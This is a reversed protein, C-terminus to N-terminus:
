GRINIQSSSDHKSLAIFTRYKGLQLISYAKHFSEESYGFLYIGTLHSHPYYSPERHIENVKTGTHLLSRNGTKTTAQRNKTSKNNTKKTKTRM